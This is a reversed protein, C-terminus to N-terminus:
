FRPNVVNNFISGFTYSVGFHMFYEFGTLLARRRLLVDVANSEGRPLYIQDRIWNYGGGAEINLGRFIRFSFGGDLETAQKSLDNLFGRHEINVNAQGWPQRTRYSGRVFHLPMTENIKNFITTDRYRYGAAGLGYQFSLERRTAEAYPFLNYEAAIRFQYRLKQNRFTQSALQLEAGLGGHSTVSRIQRLELGWDRQLNTYQEEGIVAGTTDNVIQVTAKEDRYNGEFSFHTKWVATVRDASLETNVHQSRYFREGNTFGNLGIEFVWAKWRDNAPQTQTTAGPLSAATSTVRLSQAAPTRAVFGVLGLAITRMMAQRREDPTTTTNTNFTLTDGRGALSRAGLFAITIEQGGVGASQSTILVHVDAVTRDRVWNVWTIETRMLEGDCGTQCDLYVSLATAVAAPPQAAARFPLSIAILVFAPAFARPTLAM